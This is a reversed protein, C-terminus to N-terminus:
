LTNHNVANSPPRSQITPIQNGKGRQLLDSGSWWGAGAKSFFLISITQLTM